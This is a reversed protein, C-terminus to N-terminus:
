AIMSLSLFNTYYRNECTFPHLLRSGHISKKSKKIFKETGWFCGAGLAFTHSITPSAPSAVPDLVPGDDAAPEAEFRM